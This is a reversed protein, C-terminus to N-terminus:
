ADELKKVAEEYDGKVLERHADAVPGKQDIPVNMSKFMKQNAQAQAYNKNEKAKEKLGQDAKEMADMIKRATAARDSTPSKLLDQLNAHALQVQKDNAMAPPIANIKALAEKVMNQNEAIKRQEDQKARAKEQRGLVDFNPMLIAVLITIVAAAIAFYGATPFRVGFHGDLRVRQATNEADRVVAQAFPDQMARVSLATSFKEKLDLREDLAVAAAEKSPSRMFTMVIAIVGVLGLGVWFTLPPIGLHFLREIVILLLTGGALVVAAIAIWEVFVSLTLRFQVASVQSDIRSM